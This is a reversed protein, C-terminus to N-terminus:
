KLGLDAHRREAANRGIREGGGVLFGWKERVDGNSMSDGAGELV